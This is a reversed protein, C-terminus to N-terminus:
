LSRSLFILLAPVGYFLTLVYAIAAKKNRSTLGALWTSMRLPIKRIARVPYILLMGAVNFLLHVFAIQVALHATESPVAM